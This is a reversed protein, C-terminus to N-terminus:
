SNSNLPFSHGFTFNCINAFDSENGTHHLLEMLAHAGGEYLVCTIERTYDIYPIAPKDHESM